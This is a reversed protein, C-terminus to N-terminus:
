GSTDPSRQLTEQLEALTETVLQAGAEVLVEATVAAGATVGVPIMGAALAARVDWTSDGVCWCEEPPQGLNRAALLLLDPAPKAHEVHSGDVLAPKRPLDLAAVSTGVQDSRSSTAIAWPLRREDLWVLLEHAGPLPRPDQNLGEYIEGCRHDIQEDGGDPLDRGAADAVDRALRRGDVGILAAV